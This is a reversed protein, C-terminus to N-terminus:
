DILDFQFQDIREIQVAHSRLVDVVVRGQESVFPQAGQPVSMQRTRYTLCPVVRWNAMTSPLM